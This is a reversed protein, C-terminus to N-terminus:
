KEGEELYVWADVVTGKVVFEQMAEHLHPNRRNAILDCFIKTIRNRFPHYFSDGSNESRANANLSQNSNNNSTKGNSEVYEEHISRDIVDQLKEKRITACNKIFVAIKDSILNKNGELPQELLAKNVESDTFYISNIMFCVNEIRKQTEPNSVIFIACKYNLFMEPDTLDKNRQLDTINNLGKNPVMLNFKVQKKSEVSFIVCEVDMSGKLSKMLKKSTIMCSVTKEAIIALKVANKDSKKFGSIKQFTDRITNLLFVEEDLTSRKSQQDNSFRESKQPSQTRSNLYYLKLLYQASKRHIYENYLQVTIADITYSMLMSSLNYNIPREVVIQEPQPNVNYSELSTRKVVTNEGIQASDKVGRVSLLAEIYSIFVIERIALENQGIDAGLAINSPIYFKIASNSLNSIPKAKTPATQRFDFFVEPEGYINKLGTKEDQILSVGFNEFWETGRLGVPLNVDRANVVRYAKFCMHVYKNLFHPYLLFLFAKTMFDMPKKGKENDFSLIEDFLPSGNNLSKYFHGTGASFCEFLKPINGRDIDALLEVMEKIDEYRNINHTHKNGSRNIEGANKSFTRINENKKTENFIGDTLVSNSDGGHVYEYLIHFKYYRQDNLSMVFGKDAMEMLTVLIKGIQDLNLHADYGFEEEEVNSESSKCNAIFYHFLIHLNCARQLIEQTNKCKLDQIAIDLRIARFRDSVFTYLDVLLSKSSNIIENTPREGHAQVYSFIRYSITSVLWMLYESCEQLVALPRIDSSSPVSRGAASRVHKKLLPLKMQPGYRYARPKYVIDGLTLREFKSLDIRMTREIAEFFPCFTPCTGILPQTKSESTNFTPSARNQSEFSNEGTSDGSAVNESLNHAREIKKQEYLSKIGEPTMGDLLGYFLHTELEPIETRYKHYLYDDRQEHLM